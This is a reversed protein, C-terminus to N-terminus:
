LKAFTPKSKTLGSMLATKFDSSQLMAANWVTTYRLNEAVSHDRAHNLLEKTGQVAVPSKGAIFGALRLGADVAATKNEHVQSVFGVALAEEASFDRASLCVDKVWSTSGVIKPLRSLTGLDAALGIDVEKVSFRTNRACIRVDACSSIDIAIGISIGHLVCIVPKECKEAAGIAEQFEVIHRRMMTAFRSPDMDGGSSNGLTGESASQVDLGATFARDGAGSLVVARVDPDHSLRNFLPGFERWVPESFANLKQPRNIEVHVVYPAPSTVLFHSYTYDKFTAM